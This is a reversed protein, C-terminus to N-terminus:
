EDAEGKRKQRRHRKEIKACVSTFHLPNPCINLLLDAWFRGFAKALSWVLRFPMSVALFLFQLVQRILTCLRCAFAFFIPSIIMAYLGMGLLVGLLLYGRVEGATMKRVLWVVVAAAALWYVVDEVATLAKKQRILLHLTRLIDYGLALVFGTLLATAFWGVQVEVSLIM